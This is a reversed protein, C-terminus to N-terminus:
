GRGTPVTTLDYAGFGSVGVEVQPFVGLILKDRFSPSPLFEQEYWDAIEDHVAASAMMM